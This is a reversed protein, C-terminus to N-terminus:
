ITNQKRINKSFKKGTVTFLAHLNEFASFSINMFEMGNYRGDNRLDNKAYEGDFYEHKMRNKFAHRGSAFAFLCILM